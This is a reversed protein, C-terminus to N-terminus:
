TVPPTEKKDLRNPTRYAKQISIFMEEKPETFNQEIIKNFINVTRKLQSDKSEKISIIRLNPRKMTDQIEQMNQTLVKKSKASEKIKTDINETIKQV